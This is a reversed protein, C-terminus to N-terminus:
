RPVPEVPAAPAVPHCIRDVGCREGAACAPNCASVCTGRLCTYGPSCEPECAVAKLPPNPTEGMTVAKAPPAPPAAAASAVASASATAEASGAGCAFLRARVVFAPVADGDHPPEISDTVLHTGGTLVAKKRLDLVATEYRPSGPTWRDEDRGVLPGLLRCGRVGADTGLVQVAALKGPDVAPGCAAGIALAAVAARKM